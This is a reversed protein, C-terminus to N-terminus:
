GVGFGMLECVHRESSSDGEVSAGLDRLFWAEEGGVRRQGCNATLQAEASPLGLRTLDLSGNELREFGTITVQIEGLDVAVLLLNRLRELLCKAAFNGAELALVDEDCRLKPVRLMTGLIDRRSEVVAKGLEAEFVEVQVEHM